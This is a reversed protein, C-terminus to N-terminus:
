RVAYVVGEGPGTLYSCRRDGVNCGDSRPVWCVNNGDRCGYDGTQTGCYGVDGNSSSFMGFGRYTDCGHTCVNTEAFDTYGYSDVYDWGSEVNISGYDVSDPRTNSMWQTGLEAGGEVLRLYAILKETYVADVDSLTAGHAFGGTTDGLVGHDEFLGWDWQSPDRIYAQVTWGGGAIDMLCYVEEAPLPGAGDPDIPYVGSPTGPSAAAIGACSRGGDPLAGDAPTVVGTLECDAVDLAQVPTDCASPPLDVILQVRGDGEDRVQRALRIGGLGTETGWCPGGPVLDDAVTFGYLFAVQGGPTMDTARLTVRGPCDGEVTLTQAVAPASVLAALVALIPM